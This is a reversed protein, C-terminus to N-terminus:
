RQGAVESAATTTRALQGEGNSRKRSSKSIGRWYGVQAEETVDWRAMLEAVDAGAHSHFFGKRCNKMTVCGNMEKATRSRSLQHEIATEVM